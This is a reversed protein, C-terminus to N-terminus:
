PLDMCGTPGWAGWQYYRAIPLTGMSISGSIDLRADIPRMGLGPDHVAHM